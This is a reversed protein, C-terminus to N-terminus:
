VCLMDPPAPNIYKTALSYSSPGHLILAVVLLNEAQDDGRFARIVISLASRFMNDNQGVVHMAMLDVNGTWSASPSQFSFVFTKSSDLFRM